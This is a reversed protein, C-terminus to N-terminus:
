KNIPENYNKGCRLVNDTTIRFTNTHNINALHLQTDPSVNLSTIIGKKKEVNIVNAFFVERNEEQTENDVVIMMMKITDGRKINHLDKFSPTVYSLMEEKLMKSEHFYIENKM